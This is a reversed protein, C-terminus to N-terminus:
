EAIAATLFLQSILKRMWRSAPDQHFRRHWFQQIDADPLEFPPEAALLDDRGDLAHAPVISVLDTAAVISCAVQYTTVKLHVDRNAKRLTLAAEVLADANGSSIRVHLARLYSALTVGDRFQTHGPRSIFRYRDRFLQQQYFYDKFFPLRGIALDAEGEELATEYREHPLKLTEIRVKPAQLALATVLRPLILTEGVDSMLIRFTRDSRNPDFKFAQTLSRELLSLAERVPGALAECLATPSMGDATRVFLPDNCTSRLRRLANSVASQSLGLMLSAQSVNRTRYVAAFVRLLNLDITEFNIM